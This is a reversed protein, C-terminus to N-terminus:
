SGRRKDRLAKLMKAQESVEKQTKEWGYANMEAILADRDAPSLNQHQARLTIHSDVRASEYNDMNITLGSGVSVEVVDFGLSDKSVKTTAKKSAM